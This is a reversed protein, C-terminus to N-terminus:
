PILKYNLFASSYQMSHQIWISLSKMADHEYPSVVFVSSLFHISFLKIYYIRLMNEGGEDGGLDWGGGWVWGVKNEGDRREIHSIPPTGCWQGVWRLNGHQLHWQRTQNEKPGKKLYAHQDASSTDPFCLGRGWLVHIIKCQSIQTFSLSPNTDPFGSLLKLTHQEARKSVVSRPNSLKTRTLRGDRLVPFWLVEEAHFSINLDDVPVASRLWQSLCLDLRGVALVTEDGTCGVSLSCLPVDGGRPHFTWM